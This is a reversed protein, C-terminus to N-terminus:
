YFVGLVIRITKHIGERRVERVGILHQMHGESYVHFLEASVESGATYQLNVRLASAPGEM